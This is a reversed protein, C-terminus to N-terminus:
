RENEKQCELLFTSSHCQFVTALWFVFCCFYFSSFVFQQQQKIKLKEIRCLFIHNLAARTKNEVSPLTWENEREVSRLLFFLYRVSIWLKRRRWHKMEETCDIFFYIFFFFQVRYKTENHFLFVRVIGEYIEAWTKQIIRHSIKNKRAATDMIWADAM